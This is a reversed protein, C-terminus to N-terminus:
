FVWDLSPKPMCLMWSLADLLERPADLEDTLAISVAPAVGLWLRSFANVSAQM